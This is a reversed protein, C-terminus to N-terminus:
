SVELDALTRYLACMVPEAGRPTASLRSPCDGPCRGRLPCTGCPGRLRVGDFSRALRERDVDTVTGAALAPDGVAQSCPYVTGDPAVALSEARCAHCYARPEAARPGRLAARVLDLERWTFPATRMRELERLTGHLDRAARAALPAPCMLDTRTRAAGRLVLPDLGLGRVNGFVGLLLALEGLSHANATSLVATVRVPVNHRALLGIGRVTDRARGRVTDHVTVPGDLSVGVEVGYDRFLSALGPTLDAAHTQVAITAPWGEDRIRRVVRELLAPECTPEGGALQVHFPTGSSAALDLAHNAVDDPMTGLGRVGRYCYVCDLTCADTLWLTLYRLCPV